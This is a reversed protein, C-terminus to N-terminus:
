IGPFKVRHSLKKKLIRNPIHIYICEGPFNPIGLHNQHKCKKKEVNYTNLANM